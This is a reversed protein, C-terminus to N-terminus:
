NLLIATAGDAVDLSTSTCAIGAAVAKEGAEIRVKVRSFRPFLLNGNFRPWPKATKDLQNPRRSDRQIARSAHFDGGTNEV